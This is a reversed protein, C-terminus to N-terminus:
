FDGSGSQKLVQIGSPATKDVEVLWHPKGGGTVGSVWGAPLAGTKDQDFNVTEAHVGAAALSLAISM